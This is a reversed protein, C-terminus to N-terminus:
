TVSMFTISQRIVLVLDNEFLSVFVSSNILNHFSRTSNFDIFLNTQHYIWIRWNSDTWFQVLSSTITINEPRQFVRRLPSMQLHWGWELIKMELILYNILTVFFSSFISLPKNINWPPTALAETM